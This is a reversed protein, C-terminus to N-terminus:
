VISSPEEWRKADARDRAEDRKWQACWRKWYRYWHWVDHGRQGANWRVWEGFERKATEGSMGAEIAIAHLRDKISQNTTAKAQFSEISLVDPHSGSATAKRPPAADKTPSASSPAQQSLTAPRSPPTQQTLPGQNVVKRDRESWTATEPQGYRDGEFGNTHTTASEVCVGSTTSPSRERWSDEETTRVTSLNIKAQDSHGTSSVSKVSRRHSNQATPRDSHGTSVDPKGAVPLYNVRYINAGQSGNRRRTGNVNILGLEVLTDRARQVTSMALGSQRAITALGPNSEFNEDAFFCLSHLVLKCSGPIKLSHIWQNFGFLSPRKVPEQLNDQYKIHSRDHM